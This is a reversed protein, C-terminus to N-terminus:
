QIRKDTRAQKIIFDQKAADKIGNAILRQRFVSESVSQTGSTPPKVDEWTLVTPRTPMAKKLAQAASQGGQVKGLAKGFDAVADDFEKRATDVGEQKKKNAATEIAQRAVQIRDNAAQVEANGAIFEANAKSIQTIISRVDDQYKMENAINTKRVELERDANYKTTETFNQGEVVKGTKTNYMRGDPAISYSEGAKKQFVPFGAAKMREVLPANEEATPDFADNQQYVFQLADFEEKKAKAAQDDALRKPDGELKAVEAQEKRFDLEEKRVKRQRDIEAYTKAIEKDNGAKEEKAERVEDEKGKFLGRLAGGALAGMSYEFDGTAVANRYAHKAGKFANVLKTDDDVPNKIKDELVTNRSMLDRLTKVIPDAPEEPQANPTGQVVPKTDAGNQFVQTPSIRPSQGAFTTSPQSAGTQGPMSTKEVQYQPREFPTNQAYPNRRPKLRSLGQEIMGLLNAM